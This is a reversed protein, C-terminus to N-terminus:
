EERENRVGGRKLFKETLWMFAKATWKCALMTLAIAIIGIGIALVGTGIIMFAGPVSFPIALIGRLFLKGGALFGAIVICVICLILSAVVCIGSFILALIVILLPIGIPAACLALIAILVGKLLGGEKEKHGILEQKGVEKELLNGFVERAAEKPTGLESILQQEGEVGAEDFCETFYDMADEYEERPLRRLYRRLERLYQEKNM